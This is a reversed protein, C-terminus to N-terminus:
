ATARMIIIDNLLPITLLWNAWQEAVAQSEECAVLVRM